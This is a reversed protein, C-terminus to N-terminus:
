ARESWGGLMLKTVGSCLLAVAASWAGASGSDIKAKSAWAVVFARRRMDEFSVRVRDGDGM